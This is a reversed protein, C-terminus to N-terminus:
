IGYLFRFRCNHNMCLYVNEDLILIISINGDYLFTPRKKKSVVKEM